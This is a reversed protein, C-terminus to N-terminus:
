LTNQGELWVHSLFLMIMTSYDLLDFKSRLLVRTVIAPPHNDVQLMEKISKLILEIFAAFLNKPTPRALLLNLVCRQIRMAISLCSTCLLWTKGNILLFRDIYKRLQNCLYSSMKLRIFLKWTLLRWMLGLPLSKLPPGWLLRTRSINVRDEMWADEEWM